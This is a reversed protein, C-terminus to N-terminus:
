IKSRFIRTRHRNDRGDYAINKWNPSITFSSAARPITIIKGTRVTKICMDWTQPRQKGKVLNTSMSTFAVRQGDPSLKPGLSQDNGQVGKESTSVRAVKGTSLTKVFVDQDRNTDGPVLNSSYCDFAATTANRNLNGDSCFGNSPRGAADTDARVVTGTALNKVYVGGHTYSPGLHIEGPVLNSASNDMVVFRGDGSLSADGTAANGPEGAASASILQVAGTQLNKLFVNELDAGVGPVLNTARSVLLVSRGNPTFVASVVDGDAPTGDASTSVQRQKGTRLDKIIAASIHGNWGIYLLSRGDPSLADGGNNGPAEHTSGAITVLWRPKPTAAYATGAPALVALCVATVGIPATIAARNIQKPGEVSVQIRQNAPRKASSRCAM